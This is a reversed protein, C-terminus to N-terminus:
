LECEQKNTEVSRGFEGRIRVPIIIDVVFEGGQYPTGPPGAFTGKLHSIDSDNVFNVEIGSKTDSKVDELEKSIRRARSM